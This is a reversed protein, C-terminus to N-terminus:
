GIMALRGTRPAECGGEDAQEHEGRDAVQRQGLQEAGARRRGVVEIDQQDGEIGGPGVREAGVAGGGCARRM